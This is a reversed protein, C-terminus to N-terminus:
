IGGHHIGQRRKFGRRRLQVFLQVSENLASLNMFLLSVHKPCTVLFSPFVSHVTPDTLVLSPFLFCPSVVLSTSPYNHFRVLFSCSLLLPCCCSCCPRSFDQQPRM